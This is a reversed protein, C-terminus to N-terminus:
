PWIHYKNKLMQAHFSDPETEMIAKEWLSPGSPGLSTDLYLKSRVPSYQRGERSSISRSLNRIARDREEIARAAQRIAEERREVARAAERIIRENERVDRAAERVMREGERIRREAEQIARRYDQSL